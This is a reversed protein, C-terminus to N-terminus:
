RGDSGGRNLAEAHDLLRDSIEHLRDATEAIQATTTKVPRRRPKKAPQLLRGFKVTLNEPERMPDIPVGHVYDHRTEGLGTIEALLELLGKAQPNKTSALRGRIAKIKADLQHPLRKVSRCLTLVLLDLGVEVGSWEHVFRGLARHFADIDDSTLENSM